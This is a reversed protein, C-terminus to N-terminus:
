CSATRAEMATYDLVIIYAYFLFLFFFLQVKAYKDFMSCTADSNRVIALLNTDHHIVIVHEDAALLIPGDEYVCISFDEFERVLAGYRFVGGKSVTRPWSKNYLESSYIRHLREKASEVFNEPQGSLYLRLAEINHVLTKYDEYSVVM